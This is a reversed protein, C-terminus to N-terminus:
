LGNHLTSLIDSKTQGELSSGELSTEWDFGDTRNDSSGRYLRIWILVPLLHTLAMVMATSLLSGFANCFAIEIYSQAHFIDVFLFGLSIGYLAGGLVLTYLFDCRWIDKETVHSIWRCTEAFSVLIIIARLSNFCFYFVLANLQFIFIGSIIYLKLDSEGLDAIENSSGRHVVRFLLLNFVNWLSFAIITSIGVLTLLLASSQYKKPYLVRELAVRLGLVGLCAFIGSMIMAYLSYPSCTDCHTNWCKGDCVIFFTISWFLSGATLKAVNTVSWSSVFNVALPDSNHSDIGM